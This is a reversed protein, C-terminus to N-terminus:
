RKRRWIALSSRQTRGFATATLNKRRTQWAVRWSFKLKEEVYLSLEVIREAIQEAQMGFDKLVLETVFLRVLYRLQLARSRTSFVFDRHGGNV